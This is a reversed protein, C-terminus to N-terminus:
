SLVQAGRLRALFRSSKDPWPADVPRPEVTGQRLAFAALIGAVATSNVIEGRLVMQVAKDLPWWKVTLDAEEDHAAPRQTQSLGTALYVRISEDSFGPTSVVDVLVKWEDAVLGAEEELERM